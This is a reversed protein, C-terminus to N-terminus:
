AAQRQLLHHRIIVPLAGEEVCEKITQFNPYIMLSGDEASLTASIDITNEDVLDVGIAGFNINGNGDGKGLLIFATTVDPVNALPKELLIFDGTHDFDIVTRFVGKNGCSGGYIYMLAGNWVDDSGEDLATSVLKTVSSNGADTVTADKPNAFSCKFVAGLGPIYEIETEDADPNQATTLSQHAVGLLNDNGQAAKEIRSNTGIKLLNGESFATNEKVIGRLIIPIGPDGGYLNKLFTFGKTTKPAAWAM